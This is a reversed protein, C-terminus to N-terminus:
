GPADVHPAVGRLDVHYGHAAQLPPHLGFSALLSASWAGACVVAADFRQRGYGGSVDVSDVEIWRGAPRIAQVSVRRFESGRAAAAQGLVRTVEVPGLVHGSGPFHLGAVSQEGATEAISALLAAPAPQTPVALKRMDSAERDARQRAQRGFWIQYHGNTRILEPRGLRDFLREFDRVASSVLPALHRTNEERHFAALAFRCAWPALRGLERLSIDLPGGFVSLQRWFGFLLQLSPLPQVLETALHGVNGFSAGGFAPAERDLVVVARGERALAYAVACGVVGAGIVVISETAM